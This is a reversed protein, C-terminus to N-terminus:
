HDESIGGLDRSLRITAANSGTRGMIMSVFRGTVWTVATGVVVYWTWPLSGLLFVATMVAIGTLMGASVATGRSTVSTSLIFAGLLSGYTFSAIALGTELVGGWNRALFSVFLLVVCWLITLARGLALESQNLWKALNSAGKRVACVPKLFDGYTSSALSNLSSSLTSVASALVAAVILGRAGTPVENVIFFPFIEDPKGDFSVPSYDRYFVYLALGILLFLCFQLFVFVGSSILAKRARGLDKSALLRQVILHDTGHSAMSLFAGGLLGAPLTYPNSSFLSLDFLGLKGASAASAFVERVGGPIHGLLLSLAFLAGGLYIILQVLDTWVVAVLGGRLTYLLTVAAIIVISPFIDIGLVVSVVLASAYLRV